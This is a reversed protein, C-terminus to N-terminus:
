WEDDTVLRVEKFGINKKVPLNSHTIHSYGQTPKVLTNKELLVPPIDLLFRSPTCYATQGYQSRSQAYSLYLKRRARTIGVYCLRREEELQDPDLLSRSHPFLGEEMGVLFVVDFELGKASHLSMLQVASNNEAYQQDKLYGDQILAINELLASVSSFQAAVRKLEEINDLRSADDPINANLKSAYQTAALIRELVKFPEELLLQDKTNEIMASLEHLKRKGSKTARELSIEDSPNLTLRLYSLLDKIEKREYFAFGGVIKHPINSEIFVEELIRSQANTRYLVAMHKLESRQREDNIWQAVQRSEAFGSQAPFVTIPVRAHNDTWLKLTPHSTNSAIVASAADLITQNSRYNQELRYESCKTFDKQLKMINRYDAGRWAYISQSFDGVVFLNNQPEALLKVLEFQVKNTDQYEDVLVHEFQNQYRELVEPNDQLLDLTKLLLDDFDLAQNELLKQQYHHYVKAAQEQRYSRAIQAYEAPKLMENKARSIWAHVVRPNLSNTDLNLQKYILKIASLQDDSDYIVFNRSMGLSEANDRLFRACLSHFTGVYPLYHASMERIRQRMEGAAKNTFTVLLIQDPSTQGSGVLWAARTTLVRTKGAGAGALVLAPGAGHMVAEKQHENLVSLLDNM